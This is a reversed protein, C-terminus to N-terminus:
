ARVFTDQTLIEAEGRDATMRLSLGYIRNVHRRHIQEFAHQDGEVAQAVLTRDDPDQASATTLSRTKMPDQKSVTAQWKGGTATM